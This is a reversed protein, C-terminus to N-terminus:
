GEYKSWTGDPYKFKTKEVGKGPKPEKSMDIKYIQGPKSGNYPLDVTQYAIVGKKVELDTKGNSFIIGSPGAPALIKYIDTGEVKEMKFGPWENVYLIDTGIKVPKGGGWWYVYVNEWKTESNDYFIYNKISAPRKDNEDVSIEFSSEDEDLFDPKTKDKYELPAGCKLAAQDQTFMAELFQAYINRWFSMFHEGPEYKSFVIKDKPYNLKLLGNYMPDSVRGNDTYYGGDYIFVFPLKGSKIKPEMYKTWSKDDAAWFSSSLAGVTGFTEPHEMGIYFSELGGLSSGCISSHAADAYVNYNKQVYPVVTDNVFDSFDKGYMKTGMEEAHGQGIDPILEDDRSHKEGGITEICVLVAKNGTAATMSEVSESVNWCELDSDMGRDRGTALVSQGDLMYITSYKEAAKADYDEPKWIYVNKESDKFKFTKTEFKPDYKPTKDQVCPLLVEDKFCWGSVFSNFTVDLTTADGYKFHVMNYKTTDEECSYIFFDKDEKTKKMEVDKSAGSVNNIFTATLKENKDEDRIYLTYKGDKKQEEKKSEETKKSEAQSSETKSGSDTKSSKDGSNNEGCAALLSLCLAATLAAATLKKVKM